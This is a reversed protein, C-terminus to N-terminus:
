QPMNHFIDPHQGSLERLYVAIREYNYRNYELLDSESKTEIYRLLNRHDELFDEGNLRNRLYLNIFRNYQINSFKVIEWMYHFGNYEFIASHFKNHYDLIMYNLDRVNKKHSELEVMMANLHDALPRIDNEPRCLKRFVERESIYRLYRSAMIQQCDILVVRTRKRPQVDVLGEFHLISIAERIPSRSVNFIQQLQPESITEGPRISAKIISEKLTRYIFAGSKEKEARKLTIIDM